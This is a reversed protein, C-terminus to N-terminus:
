KCFDIKSEPFLSNHQLLPFEIEEIPLAVTDLTTIVPNDQWDTYLTAMQFVTFCLALLVIVVWLIRDGGSYNEDGIYSFGHATSVSAYEKSTHIMGKSMTNRHTKKNRPM